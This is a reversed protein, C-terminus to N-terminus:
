LGRSEAIRAVVETALQTQAENLEPESDIPSVSYPITEFTEAVKWGIHGHAANSVAVANFDRLADLVEQVISMELASFGSLDAEDFSIVRRQVRNFRPQKRVKIRDARDLEEIVREAGNPCPGYPLRIYDFGPISRGIREYATTDAYYLIKNLKTMGFHDDEESHNAIHVILEALKKENPTQDRAGHKTLM